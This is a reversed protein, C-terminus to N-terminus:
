KVWIKDSVSMQFITRVAADNILTPGGLVAGYKIGNAKAYAAAQSSKGSTALLLPGGMANAVSGGCLGDPFDQGYALVAGNPNTFFTEAVKVSTDFRTAGGLRTVSGLGRFYKEIDANVAGTGGILYFKKGKLSEVYAKQSPQIVNKVLLIPKGTASASLSDAFGTGSAVLIENGSIGAEELIRVNTEYRDKGWLREIKFGSLGAVSADPVVASGGLMYITGGPNLNARIYNRVLDIETQRNRVLLIPAKKVCSLYSGALADAYNTGCAIIVNDFKDLGLQEKLADASKIATDYRSAGFIRMVSDLTAEKKPIARTETHSPDRKCVRTEVGEETTTAEKTVTWEGWDHGLAPITEGTITDECRSCKKDAQKGAAECTAEVASGEVDKYDHGLAPIVEGTITDECRSCKKDAQKGAAVCTAAVASGEVVKYDHGLAPVTESGTVVNCGENLCHYSRSGDETCTPEKDITFETSFNHGTPDIGETEKLGCDACERYRSGDETCTPSVTTTWEGFSHGKAPTENDRYTDKCVSCVHESYGGATCTPDVVTTVYKHGAAPIEKYTTYDCRSCTDYAEWGIETCTPAQAEHHTLDHGLAPITKAERSLEEHCVMCYIVADYSGDEKCSAATKNETIEEGQIHGTAPIAETVIDDCIECKKAKSGEETCIAEKTIKWEGYKHAIKPIVEVTSEDIVNCVSCHISKSGEEICTAKTDITYDNSWVHDALDGVEETKIDGCYTCRSTIVKKKQCTAETEGTVSYSHERINVAYARVVNRDRDYFNLFYGGTNNLRMTVICKHQVTDGVALESYEIQNITEIASILTADSDGSFAYLPRDSSKKSIFPVEFSITQGKCAFVNSTVPSSVNVNIIGYIQGTETNSLTIEAAGESKALVTYHLIVGTDSTEFMSCYGGAVSENSCAVTVNCTNNNDNVSWMISGLGSCTIPVRQKDGINLNVTKTLEEQWNKYVTFRADPFSDKNFYITSTRGTSLNTYELWSPYFTYGAVYGPCVTGQWTYDDVKTFMQAVLQTYSSATGYQGELYLKANAIPESTKITVVVEENQNVVKTSFKIEEVQSDAFAIISFSIFIALSISMIFILQKFYKM